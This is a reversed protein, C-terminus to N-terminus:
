WGESTPEEGKYTTLQGSNWKAPTLGLRDQVITINPPQWGTCCIVGGAILCTGCAFRIPTIGTTLSAKKLAGLGWSVRRSYIESGTITGKPQQLITQGTVVENDPIFSSIAKVSQEKSGSFVYTTQPLNLRNVMRGELVETKGATLYGGGPMNKDNIFEFTTCTAQQRDVEGFEVKAYQEMGDKAANSISSKRTGPIDEIAPLNEKVVTFTEFWGGFIFVLVVFKTIMTPYEWNYYFNKLLSGLLYIVLTAIVLIVVFITHHLDGIAEAIPSAPDQFNM